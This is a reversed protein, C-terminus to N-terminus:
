EIWSETEGLAASHSNAAEMLEFYAWYGMNKLDTFTRLRRLNEEIYTEDPARDLLNNVLTVVEARTIKANGHFLGDGYGVIWGHKAADEIYKAAWDGSSVDKFGDYKEMIEANGDGYVAFFKVAMTTFEARTINRNPRFTRDAYGTAIGYGSLYRVAPAYWAGVPIDLFRAADYGGLHDGNKEALLRAFVAAAEARTMNGNPRVTGDPYGALYATHRATEAAEPVTLKGNEDTEGRERGGLDDKVTVNMGEQPNKRNDTVTVTIRHEADMDIGDPLIIVLGFGLTAPETQFRPALFHTYNEGNQHFRFAAYKAVLQAHEIPRGNETHEVKVTLTIRDGDEDKGGVTANGNEDTESSGDPVTIQGAKDTTDAAHNKNKDTVSLFMDVVPSKDKVLKVTVTTQNEYDLLRGNPLRIGISDDKRLTVTAGAIPTETDTDTVIVLYGGVIAQGNEDTVAQNRIKDITETELTEGCNECKKHKEGESDKTPEKDIIWDGPKHGTPLKLVVGCVTCVQPETCTAATGPVHGTSADGELRHYGCRTCRYETVGSGDCTKDTVITGEDWAHGLADTYDTVFSSGCGHCIHMTRGGTECGAPTVVAEYKHPLAATMDTIHRDGCVTCEKVTYGPNVCTAKVTHTEYKHEGKQAHETEVLGCRSCIKLVKGETECTADRIVVSQWAHGLADVYDRKEIKGCKTCLYRDYGLELCTPEVSELLTFRHNEACGKDTCCDGNCDEDECGCDPNTCGCGGSAAGRLWVYAAGNETMSEGSFTYTIEYYVTYQGKETYNPASTLNCADASTGYRIRRSVGSESLDSVSITHPKGDAVGFYSAVVSKAAIYQTKEYDCLTCADKGAFRQHGLQPTVTRELDHRELESDTQKRTGYCFGCYEGSETTKTHYKSDACAYSVSEPLKQAFDGACDYLWYVNVNHGYDTKAMNANITGCTECVAKSWHYGTYHGDVGPTGADVNGKNEGDVMTGDSYKVGRNLATKGTRSYEPTRFSEFSTEKSCEYCFMTERTVVANADLENTRNAAQQWHEAPDHYSNAQRALAAPAQGICTAAILLLSIISKARQKM